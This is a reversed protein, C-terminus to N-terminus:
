DKLLLLVKRLAQITHLSLMCGKSIPCSTQGKGPERVSLLFPMNGETNQRRSFSHLKDATVIHAGYPPAQIGHIIHFVRTGGQRLLAAGATGDRSRVRLCPERQVHSAAVRGRGPRGPEGERPGQPCRAAPLRSISGHASASAGCPGRRVEAAEAPARLAASAGSGGGGGGGGRRPGGPPAAGGRGRAPLAAPPALLPGKHAGADAAPHSHPGPRAPHPPSPLPPSALRPLPISKAAEGRLAPCAGARGGMAAGQPSRRGDQAEATGWPSAPPAALRKEDATQRTAAPQGPHGDEMVAQAAPGELQRRRRGHPVHLPLDLRLGPQREGLLAQPVAASLHPGPPAASGGRSTGM